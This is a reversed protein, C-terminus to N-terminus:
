NCAATISNCALWNEAMMAFDELNITCDGNVDGPLKEACFPVNQTITASEIIIDDVPVDDMDNETHTTVAAIADVVDMGSLVEGFVCYGIQASYGIHGYDLFLNHEPNQNIFFQSTATDANATRAMAVTGRLNHLRNSSENIIPAGPTQYALETDFGGGQIMFGPMVRHFILGDYFGSQVYNLFNEVTVPAEDAYLEIVISGSVAGTIQLTVEPNDPNQSKLWDEALLMLDSANVTGDPVIDSRPASTQWDAALCAFDRLNVHKDQNIDGLDYEATFANSLFLCAFGAFVVIRM